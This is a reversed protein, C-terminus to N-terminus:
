CCCHVRSAAWTHVIMDGDCDIPLNPGFPDYIIQLGVGAAAEVPAVQVAHGALTPCPVPTRSPKPLRVVNGGCYPIPDVLLPSAM